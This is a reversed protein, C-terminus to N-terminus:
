SSYWDILEGVTAPLIGASYPDKGLDDELIASLEALDLSELGLESIVSGTEVPPDLDKRRLLLRIAEMITQQPDAM